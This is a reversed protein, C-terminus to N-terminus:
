LRGLGRQPPAPPTSSVNKNSVTSKTSGCIFSMGEHLGEETTIETSRGDTIGTRVHKVALNGDENMFWLRAVTEDAQDPPPFPPKQEAGSSQWRRKMDDPMKAFDPPTGQPPKIGKYLANMMEDSPQYKLATNSILLADVRQEIIFDVTATMGPLLLNNDNNADIVATYNVVNQVTQPQLRVQQVTGSFTEDPYALVTFRVKQKDKIQGIDSEDVLAQIEMRSLDEAITFLVPASLSAAVTQGEEINRQIVTGDIPSRIVAYSLNQRARELKARVSRISAQQTQLSTKYPLFEAESLFGKEFLPANREYDSFAQDLQARSQEVSAEAEIVAAELISTDLVALLQGKSVRDNFDAYLEAITGSVQTGIEVTSVAEITGTSTITNELDGRVLTTFRFQDNKSGNRSIYIISATGFAVILIMAAIIIKKM